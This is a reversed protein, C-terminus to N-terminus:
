KAMIDAIKNVFGGPDEVKGGELLIAMSYILDACLALKDSDSDSAAIAKMKLALPHDPNLELTRKRTPIPQGMAKLIREM